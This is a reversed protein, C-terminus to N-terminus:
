FEDRKDDSIKDYKKRIKKSYYGPGDFAIGWNTWILINRGSAIYDKWIFLWDFNFYEPWTRASWLMKSGFEVKCM